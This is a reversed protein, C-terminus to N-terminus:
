LVMGLVQTMYAYTERNSGSGSEGLVWGAFEDQRLQTVVDRLKVIGQGFPVNGAKVTGGNVPSPSFDKLHVAVMRKCYTRCADVPDAGGAALHGVDALFHVYREDTGELFRRNIGSSVERQEPHYGLRVGWQERLRRGVENANSVWAKLDIKRYAEDDDVENLVSAPAIMHTIYEGGVQSLFRGLLMHQDTLEKLQSRDGMHSFQALAVLRLHKASMLDKFETVREVYAQAVQVRTNNFEIQHVGLRSADDCHQWFDRLGNEASTKGAPVIGARLPHLDRTGHFTLAAFASASQLFLRRNM